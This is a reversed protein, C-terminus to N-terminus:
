FPLNKKSPDKHIFSKEFNDKPILKLGNIITFCNDVYTNLDLDLNEIKSTFDSLSVSQTYLSCVYSSFYLIEKSDEFINSFGSIYFEKNYFNFLIYAANNYIVTDIYRDIPHLGLEHLCLHCFEYKYIYLERIDKLYFLEMPEDNKWMCSEFRLDLSLNYNYQEGLYIYYRIMETMKAKDLKPNPYKTLLYRPIISKLEQITNLTLSEQAFDWLNNLGVKQIIKNCLDAILEIDNTEYLHDLNNSSISSLTKISNAEEIFNKEFDEEQKHKFTNM